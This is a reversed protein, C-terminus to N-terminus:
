KRVIEFKIPPTIPEADRKDYFAKLLASNVNAHAYITEGPQFTIFDLHAPVNLVAADEGELGRAKLVEKGQRMDDALIITIHSM